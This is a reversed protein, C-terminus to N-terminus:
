SNLTEWIDRACEQRESYTGGIAEEDNTTLGHSYWTKGNGLRCASVIFREGWQNAVLFMWPEGNARNLAIGYKRRKYVGDLTRGEVPKFLSDILEAKTGFLLKGIKLM